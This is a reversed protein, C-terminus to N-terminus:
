AQGESASLAAKLSQINAEIDGKFVASGSVFVNAGARFARGITNRDIGGDVEIETALGRAEIEKRLTEIRGPADELFPQGGFGPYVTMILVMDLDNLYPFVAEVPTDPKVSVAARIGFSHILDICEKVNDCAELHITIRDAGAKAFSTINKYPEFIMLHVDIELDTVKRISRLVVEGFSIEPVFKGDMVDFHLWEAGARKVEGLQKELGAFDASLLSPAIKVTNM